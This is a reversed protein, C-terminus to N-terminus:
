SIRVYCYPCGLNCANTVHMWVTLTQSKSAQHKPQSGASQLLSQTVFQYDIEHDLIQPNSFQQLRQWAAANVISPGNPATPSFLLYYQKDALPQVHINPTLSFQQGPSQSSLSFFTESCACDNSELIPLQQPHFLSYSYDPCACDDQRAPYNSEVFLIPKQANPFINIKM